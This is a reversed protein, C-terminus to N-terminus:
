DGLFQWVPGSDEPPVIYIRDQIGPPLPGGTIDPQGPLPQRTAFEVRAVAVAEDRTAYRGIVHESNAFVDHM